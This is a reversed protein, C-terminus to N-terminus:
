ADAAAVDDSGAFRYRHFHISSPLCSPCLPSPPALPPSSKSTTTGWKDIGGGRMQSPNEVIAEDFPHREYWM